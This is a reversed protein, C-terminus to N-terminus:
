KVEKLAKMANMASDRMLKEPPKLGTWIEFAKIGQHVLMEIGYIVECGCEKAVRILKTEMPNYVTDFVVVDRLLHEPVPLTDQFGRMGLPTTNVILDVKLKSLESEDIFIIKGFKRLESVLRLGREVTRNHVVVLAGKKILAYAVAKGAGGAGVVLASISDFDDIKGEIAKLAGYVDTNYAVRREFDITNVVGIEKASGVGPYHKAFVEKYPITVNAGSFENELSKISSNIKDPEIEMKVYKAPINFYEFASNHMAPSVSHTLPFGVICYKKIGNSNDGSSEISCAKM